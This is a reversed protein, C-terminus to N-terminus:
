HLPLLCSIPPLDHDVPTTRYLMSNGKKGAIEIIGTERLCYAMQQGVRRSRGIGVALDTTTFPGPLKAPLLRALDGPSEIIVRETVELLRREVVTWGKRRLSKNGDFRRMEEQDTILIELSLNPHDILWPFSVLEAFVDHVRGVKPSKRRSSPRGAHPARVIWKRGAIPHVIHIPHEDLLADLKRKLSSFGRTQVEILQEGRVIDVVFQGFPVEFEDGPQACWKKLSAHLHTEKLTGVGPSTVSSITSRAHGGAWRGVVASNLM